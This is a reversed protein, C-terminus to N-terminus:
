LQRRLTKMNQFRQMITENDISCAVDEEIYVVLCDNMWQDEMRNRLENKIYKMASFSREVTATAVPLTLVLKVLLNVLPYIEHKRTNVLREALESVGQLELFLDNNHM